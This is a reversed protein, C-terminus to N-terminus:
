LVEVVKIQLYVTDCSPRLPSFSRESREMWVSKVKATVKLRRRWTFGSGGSGKPWELPGSHTFNTASASVKFANIMAM